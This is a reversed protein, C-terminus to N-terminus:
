PRTRGRLTRLAGVALTLATLPLVFFLMATRYEDLAAHDVADLFLYTMYALYYALFVGGEWRSITYGTFFIPLAAVAVGIMVPLDFALVGPSVPLGDPALVSGFGLVALLNFLNSGVVNGVAIDREGRLAALVSTALEPLSTGIAIITLGIVLESVGLAEATAVAAAVLWQSGFVLLVLGAAILALDLPWTRPGDREPGFELDYGDEGYAADYVARTRATERRSKRILLVTYSVIGAALLVGDLRGITGDLALVLVLGSVGIMLPVDLRVLQRVVVLPAIAASLGLIFLVNFINSGVVNGLAVDAAGTHAAGVTVALEPASTGFAVVTLGVVLPSIGSATALRSAGRVLLEAGAILLGSGVVLQLIVMPTM